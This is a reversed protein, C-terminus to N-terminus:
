PSEVSLAMRCILRRCDELDEITPTQAHRYIAHRQGGGTQYVSPLLFDLKAVEAASTKAAILFLSQFVASHVTNLHKLIENAAHVIERNGTRLNITSHGLGRVPLRALAAKEVFKRAWALHESAARTEGLKLVDFYASIEAKVEANSVLDAESLDGLGLGYMDVLVEELFSRSTAVLREVEIRNPLVGHHKYSVRISNLQKLRNDHPLRKRISEDFYRSVAAKLEEFDARRSVSLNADRIITWLLHEVADHAMSVAM